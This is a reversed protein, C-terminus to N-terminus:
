RRFGYELTYFQPQLAALPGRLRALETEPGHVELRVIEALQLAEQLLPGIHDLHALLGEADLYGERCYALEGDFCFGYFLCKAESRTQEVFRECLAKFAPLNAPPVKFYPSITCCSDQTAM